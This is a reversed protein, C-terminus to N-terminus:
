SAHDIDQEDLWALFELEELLEREQAAFLQDDEIDPLSLTDSMRTAMAFVLVTAALAGIPVWRPPASAAVDASAVAARRAADLRTRVAASLHQDDLTRRVDDVFSEESRPDHPETM